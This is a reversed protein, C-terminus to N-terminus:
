SAVGLFYLHASESTCRLPAAACDCRVDLVGCYQAQPPPNLLVVTCGALAAAAAVEPAVQQEQVLDQVVAQLFPLTLTLLNQM